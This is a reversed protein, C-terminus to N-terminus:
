FLGELRTPVSLRPLIESIITPHRMYWIYADYSLTMVSEPLLTSAWEAGHCWRFWHWSTVYDSGWDVPIRMLHEWRSVGMKNCAAYSQWQRWQTLPMDIARRPVATAGNCVCQLHHLRARFWRTNQQRQHSIKAKSHWCRSLWKAPDAMNSSRGGDASPTSTGFVCFNTTGPRYYFFGGCNAVSLLNLGPPTWCHWWLVM